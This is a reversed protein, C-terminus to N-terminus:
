AADGPSSKVGTLAESRRYNRMLAQLGAAHNM